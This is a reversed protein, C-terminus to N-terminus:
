QEEEVDKGSVDHIAQAVAVNVFETSAIKNDNTGKTATQVYTTGIFRSSGNVLLSKLQAM